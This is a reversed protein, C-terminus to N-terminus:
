YSAEMSDYRKRSYEKQGYYNEDEERHYNPWTGPDHLDVGAPVHRGYLGHKQWLDRKQEPGMSM